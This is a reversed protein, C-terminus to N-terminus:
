RRQELWASVAQESYFQHLTDTQPDYVIWRLTGDIYKPRIAIQNQGTLFDLLAIAWQKIGPQVDQHESPLLKARAIAQSLESELAGSRLLAYDSPRNFGGRFSSNM